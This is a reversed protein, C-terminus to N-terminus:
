RSEPSLSARQSPSQARRILGKSQVSVSGCGWGPMVSAIVFCEPVRAGRTGLNMVNIPFTNPSLDELTNLHKFGVMEFLIWTGIVRQLPSSPPDKLEAAAEAESM